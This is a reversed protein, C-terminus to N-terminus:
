SERTLYYNNQAGIKNRGRNERVIITKQAVLYSEQRLQSKPIGCRIKEARPKQGTHSIFVVILKIPIYKMSHVICKASERM